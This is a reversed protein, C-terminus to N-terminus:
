EPNVAFIALKYKDNRYVKKLWSPYTDCAMVQGYLKDCNQAPNVYYPNDVDTIPLIIAKVHHKKLLEKVKQEDSSFLIEHNDIIGEVNRHYPSAVTPREAYWLIYPSIFADSLVAGQPFNIYNLIYFNFSMNERKNLDMLDDLYYALPYLATLLAIVSCYAFNKLHLYELRIVIILMSYLATYVCFRRAYITLGTYMLLFITLMLIKEKRYKNLWLGYLCFLSILPFAMRRFTLGSKMEFIRDVFATKIREDLPSTLFGAYYIALVSIVAAFALASTQSIKTQCLKGTLVFAGWM